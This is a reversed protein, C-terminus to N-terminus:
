DLWIVAQNGLVGWSKKFEGKYKTYVKAGDLVTVKNEDYGIVIVTHEFKAVVTQAGGPATYPVPTGLNVHGVVWVIVPQGSAIEGKLEKFTMGYVGKAKLDFERLRQAIPKAHVGYPNPPIQGWSGYVDGVFGKDPNAHIPLGNFFTYENISKGFHAAWDVASRAECSLPMSQRHGSIGEIFAQDPLNDYRNDISAQPSHMGPTPTATPNLFSRSLPTNTPILHVSDVLILRDEPYRTPILLSSNSAPNSNFLVIALFGGAIILNAGFVTTGPPFLAKIRNSRAEINAKLFQNVAKAIKM